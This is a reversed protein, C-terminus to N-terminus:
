RPILQSVEGCILASARTLACCPCSVAVHLNNSIGRLPVWSPTRENNVDHARCWRNEGCLQCPRPGINLPVV